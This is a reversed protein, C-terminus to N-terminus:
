RNKQLVIKQREASKTNVAQESKSTNKMFKKVNTCDANMLSKLVKILSKNVINYIFSIFVLWITEKLCEVAVTWLDFVSNFYIKIM